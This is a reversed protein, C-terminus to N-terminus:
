SNSRGSSDAAVAWDLRLGRGVQGREGVMRDGAAHLWAKLPACRNVDRCVICLSPVLFIIFILDTIIIDPGFSFECSGLM